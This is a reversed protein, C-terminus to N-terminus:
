LCARAKLCAICLAIPGTKATAEAWRPPDTAADGLEAEWWGSCQGLSYLSWGEPLLSMAADLSRTYERWQTTDSTLLECIERDLAASGSTAAELRSILDDLM